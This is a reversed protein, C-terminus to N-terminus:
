VKDQHFDITTEVGIGLEGSNMRHKDASFKPYGGPLTGSGGTSEGQNRFNMSSTRGTVITESTFAKRNAVRQIILLPAIVQTQTLIPKFIEVAYNKAVFPGIVLLSSLTFLASSEILMTAVAKYLGSIGGPSGTAIRTSRGCLLLQIVIMLTLLVNLSVSISIHSLGFATNSFGPNAMHYVRLIGMVVSTLYILCPFAIVWLNKSYFIYCRYLLLGDALWNNLSFVANPTLRIAESYIFAQYGFPGYPLKGEVGPFERNDIYSISQVHLNMATNVTVLSFMLVTFSIYGWKIGEGRRYLPNFLATMCKFFLVILTGYLISGVLLGAFRAKEGFYLDYPIKPANPNDSWSQEDSM